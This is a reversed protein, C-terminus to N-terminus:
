EGRASPLLFARLDAVSDMIYDAGSDELEGAAAYGYRVGIAKIGALHAGIMDYKTDGVLITEEPLCSLEKMATSIIKEKPDEVGQNPSGYVADFLEELGAKKLIAEAMFLPKMTTVAATIKAERLAQVLEVMGPFPHAEYMGIPIYREKFDRGMQEAQEQSVNFHVRFTEVLPPGAFFRLDNQDAEIGHKKLAYQASKTIGEVTDFVTGDFDFLVTSYM